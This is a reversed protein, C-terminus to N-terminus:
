IKVLFQLKILTVLVARLKCFYLSSSAHLAASCGLKTQLVGIMIFASITSRDLSLFDSGQLGGARVRGM